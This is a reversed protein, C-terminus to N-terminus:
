VISITVGPMATINGLDEFAQIPFLLNENPTKQKDPFQIQFGREIAKLIQLFEAKVPDGKGSAYSATNKLLGQIEPDEKCYKQFENYNKFSHEKGKLDWFTMKSATCDLKAVHSLFTLIPGNEIWKKKCGISLLAVDVFKQCNNTYKDYMKGNYDVITNCLKMLNEKDNQIDLAFQTDPYILALVNKHDGVNHVTVLNSDTWHILYPGVQLSTHNLGLPTIHSAVWVTLGGLFTQKDQVKPLSSIIVRVTLKNGLAEQMKLIKELLDQDTISNVRGSDVVWQFHWPLKNEQVHELTIETPWQFYEEMFKEPNTYIQVTAIFKNFFDEQWQKDESDNSELQSTLMRVMNEYETKYNNYLFERRNARKVGKMRSNDSELVVCDQKRLVEDLRASLWMRKEQLLIRVLFVDWFKDKWIKELNNKKLHEKYRNEFLNAISQVDKPACRLRGWEFANEQTESKENKTDVVDENTSTIQGM